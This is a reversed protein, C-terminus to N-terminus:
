QALHRAGAFRARKGEVTYDMKEQSWVTFLLFERSKILRTLAQGHQVVVGVEGERRFQEGLLRLSKRVLCLLRQCGDEELARSARDSRM